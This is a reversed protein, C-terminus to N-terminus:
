PSDPSSPSSPGSVTPPKTGGTAQAPAMNLTQVIPVVWVAGGLRVGKKLLERRTLSETPNAHEGDVDEEIRPEQFM